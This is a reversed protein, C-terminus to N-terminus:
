ITMKKEAFVAKRRDSTSPWVSYPRWEDPMIGGRASEQGRRLFTPVYYYDYRDAVEPEALRDIM